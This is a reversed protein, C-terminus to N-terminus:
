LFFGTGNNIVIVMKGLSSDMLMNIASCSQWHFIVKGLGLRPGLFFRSYVGKVSAEWTAWFPRQLTVSSTGTREARLASRSLTCKNQGKEISSICHTLLTIVAEM